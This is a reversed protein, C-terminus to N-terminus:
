SLNPGSGGVFSSTVGVRAEGESLEASPATFGERRPPDYSLFHGRNGAGRIITPGFEVYCPGGGGWVRRLPLARRTPSGKAILSPTKQSTASVNCRHGLRAAGTREDRRRIPTTSSTPSITPSPERDPSRSGLGTRSSPCASVPRVVERPRLAGPSAHLFTLTPAYPRGDDGNLSRHDGPNSPPRFVISRALISV